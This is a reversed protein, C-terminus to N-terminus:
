RGVSSLSQRAWTARFVELLEENASDLSTIARAFAEKSGRSRESEYVGGFDNSAREIEVTEVTVAHMVSEKFNVRILAEVDAAESTGTHRTILVKLFDLSKMFSPRALLQGMSQFFQRASGFDPMAPPIPVLLGTAAYVANLTFTGMNPGCDLVVVDYQDEVASIAARLREVAHLGLATQNNEDVNALQLEADQLCLNAPVLDVGTFYTKRIVSPLDAPNQVLVSAITDEAELDLDPIVGFMLTMTAQPDLDIALVRLGTLACKQALHVATTTKGAGGKFNTVACVIARTGSPRQYLSGAYRRYRNILELSYARRGADDRLPILDPHESELRKLTPGSRDIMKAAAEIGWTRLRKTKSPSTIADRLKELIIAGNDAYKILLTSADNVQPNTATNEM